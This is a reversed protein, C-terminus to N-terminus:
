RKTSKVDISNLVAPMFIDYAAMKENFEAENHSRVVFALKVVTDGVLVEKSRVETWLPQRDRMQKLTIRSFHAPYRHVPRFVHGTDLVEGGGNQQALRKKDSFLKNFQAKTFRKALKADKLYTLTIMTELDGDRRTWLFVEPNGPARNVAGQMGETLPKAKWATPRLFEVNPLKTNQTAEQLRFVETNRMDLPGTNARTETTASAPTDMATTTKAAAVSMPTSSPSANAAESGTSSGPSVACATLSLAVLTPCLLHTLLKM